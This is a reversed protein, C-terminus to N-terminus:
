EREKKMDDLEMKKKNHKEIEEAQEVDRLRAAEKQQMQQKNVKVLDARNQAIKKLRQIEKQKERELDEEAQRKILEGELMEEKIKKIYRLKFDELQDSIAKSNNMKVKYEEELKARMKEDYERMKEIEIEEWHKDIEKEHLAKRAKLAKQADQEYLVDAILMKSKFAKVMDQQEHMYNNAKEIQQRRLEDQYGQEEADM